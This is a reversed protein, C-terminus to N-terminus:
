CCLFSCGGTARLELEFLGVKYQEILDLMYRSPKGPQPGSSKPAWDVEAARSLPGRGAVRLVCELVLREAAELSRDLAAATEPMPLGCAACLSSTSSAADEGPPDESRPRALLGAAGGAWRGAAQRLAAVSGLALTAADVDATGRQRALRENWAPALAQSVLDQVFRAAALHEPARSDPHLVACSERAATAWRLVAGACIEAHALATSSYPAERPFHDPAAAGGNADASSSSGAPAADLALPLALDRELRRAEEQSALSVAVLADPRELAAAVAEKGPAAAEGGAQDRVAWEAQAIFLASLSSLLGHVM